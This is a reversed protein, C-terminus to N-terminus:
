IQTFCFARFFCVFKPIKPITKKLKTFSKVNYKNKYLDDAIREQFEEDTKDNNELGREELLHSHKTKDM